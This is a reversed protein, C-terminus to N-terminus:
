DLSAKFDGREMAVGITASTVSKSVSQMTHEDTGHYFPHWFPDFYNYPGTLQANLPGREHAEKHYISAYDHSYNREFAISGCRVVLFNDVLPVKGATFAADMALLPETALGVDKPSAQPWGHTPWSAPAATVPLVLRLLLAPWHKM